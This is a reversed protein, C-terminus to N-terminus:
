SGQRKPGRRGGRQEMDQVYRLMSARSVQWIPGFKRALVKGERVLERVREPHYSSIQAADAVTIWDEAM